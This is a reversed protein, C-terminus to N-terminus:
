YLTLAVSTLTLKTAFLTPWVIVIELKNNQLCYVQWPRIAYVVERRRLLCKRISYIWRQFTAAWTSGHLRGCPQRHQSLKVAVDGAEYLSCIPGGHQFQGPTCATPRRSFFVFGAPWSPRYLPTRCPTCLGVHAARQAHSPAHLSRNCATWVCLMSAWRRYIQARGVTVAVCGSRVTRGDGM